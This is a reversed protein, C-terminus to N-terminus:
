TFVWPLTAELTVHCIEYTAPIHTLIIMGRQFKLPLADSSLRKDFKLIITCSQALIDRSRSKALDCSSTNDSLSPACWCSHNQWLSQKYYM